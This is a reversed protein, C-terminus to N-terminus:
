VPAIEVSVIEGDKLHENCYTNLYPTFRTTNDELYWLRGPNKGEVLECRKVMGALIGNIYLWPKRRGYVPNANVFAQVEGLDKFFDKVHTEGTELDAEFAGYLYGDAYPLTNEPLISIGYRTGNKVM